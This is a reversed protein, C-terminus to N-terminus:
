FGVCVKVTSNFSFYIFIGLAFYLVFAHGLVMFFNFVKNSSRTVTTTIVRMNGVNYSTSGAFTMQAGKILSVYIGSVLFWIAYIVIFLLIFISSVPISSCSIIDYDKADCCAKGIL